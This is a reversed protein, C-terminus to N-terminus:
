STFHAGSWEAVSRVTDLWEFWFEAELLKKTLEAKKVYKYGVIASLPDRLHVFTELLSILGVKGAFSYYLYPTKGEVRM